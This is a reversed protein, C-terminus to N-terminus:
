FGLAPRLALQYGSRAEARRVQGRGQGRGPEHGIRSPCRVRRRNRAAKRRSKADNVPMKARSVPLAHGPRQGPDTRSAPQGKQNRGIGPQGGLHARVPYVPRGAKPVRRATPLGPESHLRDAGMRRPFQANRGSQGDVRHQQRGHKRRATRARSCRHAREPKALQDPVRSKSNIRQATHRGLVGPADRFHCAERCYVAHARESGPRTSFAPM